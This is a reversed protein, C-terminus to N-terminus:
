KLSQWKSKNEVVQKVADHQELMQRIKVAFKQKDKM